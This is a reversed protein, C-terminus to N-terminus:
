PLGGAADYRGNGDVDVFVPNTFGLAMGRPVLEGYLGPLITEEPVGELDGVEAVLWSDRPLHLTTELLEGTGRAAVQGNVWLRMEGVPVWDAALVELRVHVEGSTAQLTEGPGAGVGGARVSLMPVPGDTGIVRGSRVANM